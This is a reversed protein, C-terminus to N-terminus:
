SLSVTAATSAEVCFTYYGGELIDVLGSVKYKDPAASKGALTSLDAGQLNVKSSASLVGVEKSGTYFTACFAENTSTTSYGLTPDCFCRCHLYHTYTHIQIHIHVCM